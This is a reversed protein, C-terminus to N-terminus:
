NSDIAAGVPPHAYQPQRSLFESATPTWTVSKGEDAPMISGEAMFHTDGDPARWGNLPSHEGSKTSPAKHFNNGPLQKYPIRKKMMSEIQDETFRASQKIDRTLVGVSVGGAGVTLLIPRVGLGPASTAAADCISWATVLLLVTSFYTRLM